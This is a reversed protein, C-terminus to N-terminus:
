AGVDWFSASGVKGWAGVGGFSAIAVKSIASM